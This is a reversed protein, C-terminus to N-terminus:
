YTVAELEDYLEIRPAAKVGARGMAEELDPNGVFQEALVRTPFGSVVTVINENELSRNIRHYLAGGKSPPFEDFAAKWSAYDGVEHRVAVITNGM